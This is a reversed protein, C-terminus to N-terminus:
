IVILILKFKIKVSKQPAKFFKIFAKYAKM